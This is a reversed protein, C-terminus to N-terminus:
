KFSFVVYDSKQKYDTIYTIEKKVTHGSYMNMVPSFDRLLVIDGVKFERDNKRIEFTKNGELVETFYQPHIKLEHYSM